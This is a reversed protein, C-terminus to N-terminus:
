GIIRNKLVERVMAMEQVGTSVKQEDSRDFNM